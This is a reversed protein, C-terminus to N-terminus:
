LRNRGTILVAVHEGEATGGQMLAALGSTGTASADIGTLVRCQENAAALKGEDTLIIKGRTEIVGRLVGIWDYSEHDLIGTAISHAPEDWPWMFDARHRAAHELLADTEGGRGSTACRSLLRHARALPHVARTQTADIQPVQRLAGLVSAEQLGAVVSSALGGGGVQVIIRDLRAGKDGLESALEYALTKGGEIAYANQPGQCSFPIAGDAVARTLRRYAPDGSEGESAAVREVHAGLDTLVSVVEVNASAPIFVQLERDMARALVAAAIAANGCSAIALPTRENWRALGAREAVRLHIAIGMVHRAKHSAAVNGTEDKLWVAAARREGGLSKLPSSSYLPTTRFGHGWICAVADDLQGVLDVYEADGL